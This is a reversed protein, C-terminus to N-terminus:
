RLVKNAPFTPTIKQDAPPRYWQVPTEKSDNLRDQLLKVVNAKAQTQIKAGYEETRIIFSAFKVAGWADGLDFKVRTVGDSYLLEQIEIEKTKQTKFM